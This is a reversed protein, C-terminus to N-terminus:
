GQKAKTGLLATILGGIVAGVIAPIAVLIGFGGRTTPGIFPVVIIVGFLAGILFGIGGFLGLSKLLDSVDSMVKRRPDAIGEFGM